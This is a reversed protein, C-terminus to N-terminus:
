FESTDDDTAPPTTDLTLLQESAPTAKQKAAWSAKRDDRVIRCMAVLYVADRQALYCWRGLLASDLRAGLAALVRADRDHLVDIQLKAALTSCVRPWSDGAGAAAQLASTARPWWNKAGIVDSDASSLVADLTAVVHEALAADDLVASLDPPTVTATSM